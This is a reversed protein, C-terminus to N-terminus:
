EEGALLGQDADDAALFFELREYLKLLLRNLEARQGYTAAEDLYDLNRLIAKCSRVTELYRQDM